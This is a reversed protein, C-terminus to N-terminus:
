RRRSRDTDGSKQGGQGPLRKANFKDVRSSGRSLADAAIEDEHQRQPALEDAIGHVSLAFPYKGTNYAALPADQYEKESMYRPLKKGVYNNEIREWHAAAAESLGLEHLATTEMQAVLNGELASFIGQTTLVNVSKGEEGLRVRLKERAKRDASLFFIPISDQMAQQAQQRKIETEIADFCHTEGFDQKQDKYHENLKIINQATIAIHYLFDQSCLIVM